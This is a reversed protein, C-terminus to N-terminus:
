FVDLNGTAVVRSFHPEMWDFKFNITRFGDMGGFRLVLSQVKSSAMNVCESIKYKKIFLTFM